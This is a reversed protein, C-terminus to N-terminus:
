LAAVVLQYESVEGQARLGPWDQVLAGDPVVETGYILAETGSRGRGLRRCCAGVISDANDYGAAVLCTSRGSLLSIKVIYYGNKAEPAFTSDLLLEDAAFKLVRAEKEVAAWVIERDCKLHNSVRQQM